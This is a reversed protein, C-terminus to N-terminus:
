IPEDTAKSKTIFMMAVSMVQTIVVWTKAPMDLNCHM